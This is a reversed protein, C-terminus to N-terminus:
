LVPQNTPLENLKEAPTRSNLTHRPRRNLRDAIADPEHQTHGELDIGKPLYQRVLGNTPAGGAQPPTENSGREWPSHPHAFYVPIKTAITFSAHAAM